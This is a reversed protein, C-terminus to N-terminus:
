ENMLNMVPTMYDAPLSGIIQLIMPLVASGFAATIENTEEEGAIGLDIVKGPTEGLLESDLDVTIVARFRDDGTFTLEGDFFRGETVNRITGTFTIPTLGNAPTLREEIRIGDETQEMVENWTCILSQDDVTTYGLKNDDAFLMGTYKLRNEEIDREFAAYYNKGSYGCGIVALLNEPESLDASVTAVTDTGDLVNMSAYKGGDFIKLEFRINREPALLDVWDDGILDSNWLGRASLANRIKRALLVLDGYSFTIRQMVSASVFADGSYAGTQTEPQMYAFWEQVCAEITKATEGDNLYQLIGALAAETEEPSVAATRVCYGPLLSSTMSLRGSDLYTDLDAKIEQGGAYVTVEVRCHGAGAFAGAAPVLLALTLILSIFRKM